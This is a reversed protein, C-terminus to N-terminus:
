TWQTGLQEEFFANSRENSPRDFDDVMEDDVDATWRVEEARRNQHIFKENNNEKGEDSEGSESNEFDVLDGDSFENSESDNGIEEDDSSEDLEHSLDYPQTVLEWYKDNFAKDRLSEDPNLRKASQIDTTPIFAVQKTNAVVFREAYDRNNFWDPPYFDLPMRKPAKTFSSPMPVIPRCRPRLPAPKGLLNNSESMKRDLNRFFVDAMESRYPLKKIAYSKFRPIFEDDSHSNVDQLVSLYRQPYNNAVAFRYGKRALRQRRQQTVKKKDDEFNKGAQKNEKKFKETMLYHVFHDYARHLLNIDNLYSINARMYRYAGSCALQRFTMLAVTRCAENYLFGPAEELDPAWVRIGLRSLLSRIYHFYFDELNVIHKGIKKRGARADRLTQVEKENILTTGRQNKATNEIQENTSFRTNFEKLLSHNTSPPVSHEEIM